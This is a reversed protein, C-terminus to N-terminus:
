EKWKVNAASLVTEAKYFLHEKDRAWIADQESIPLHGCDKIHLARACVELDVGAAEHKRIIEICRDYDTDHPHPEDKAAEIEKILKEMDDKTTLDILSQDIKTM